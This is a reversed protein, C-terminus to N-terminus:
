GRRDPHVQLGEAFGVAEAGVSGTSRRRETTTCKLLAGAVEHAHSIADGTRAPPPQTHQVTEQREEDGPKDRGNRDNRKPQRHKKIKVEIRKKKTKEENAAAGGDRRPYCYKRTWLWTGPKVYTSARNATRLNEASLRSLAKSRRRVLRERVGKLKWLPAGELARHSSLRQARRREQGKMRDREQEVKETKRLRRNGLPQIM